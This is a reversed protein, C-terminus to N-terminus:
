PIRWELEEIQAMLWDIEKLIKAREEPSIRRETRQLTGQIASLIKRFVELTKQDGSEM